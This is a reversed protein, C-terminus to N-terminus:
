SVVQSKSAACPGRNGNEGSSFRVSGVADRLHNQRGYIELNGDRESLFAIQDTKPSWIPLSDDTETLRFQNVGSPNRTYIGPQEGGSSAVPVWEGNSSWSNFEEHQHTFAVLSDNQGDADIVHMEVKDGTTVSFSVKGGDPSWRHGSIVGGSSALQVEDSGNKNIVVLSTGGSSESLFLIRKYNPSWLPDSDNSEGITLRTLDQGDSDVVYIDQNGERDSTFLIQDRSPSACSSILLTALLLLATSVVARWRRGHRRVVPRVMKILVTM